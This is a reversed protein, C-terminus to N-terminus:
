VYVINLIRYNLTKAILKAIEIDAMHKREPFPLKIGFRRKMRQYFEDKSRYYRDEISYERLVYRWKYAVYEDGRSDFFTSQGIIEASEVMMRRAPIDKEPTKFLPKDDDGYIGYAGRLDYVDLVENLEYRQKVCDDKIIFSKGLCKRIRVITDCGDPDSLNVSRLIKGDNSIFRFNDSHCVMIVNTKM